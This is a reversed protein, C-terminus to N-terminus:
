QTFLGPGDDGFFDFVVDADWIFEWAASLVLDKLIPGCSLFQFLVGALLLGCSQRVRKRMPRDGEKENTGSDAGAALIVPVAAFDKVLPNQVETIVADTREIGVPGTEVAAFRREYEVLLLRSWRDPKTKTGHGHLAEEITYGGLPIRIDRSEPHPGKEFSAEPGPM